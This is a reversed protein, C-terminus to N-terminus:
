ETELLLRHILELTLALHIESTYNRSGQRHGEVMAQLRNRQWYPRSLTREDLLMQRVYESLSDRYWVGFDAFKHRGLFLRELHLASGLHDVRAVWQPMGYDYAYEAKFTFELLQQEWAAALRSRNGGFGRDTAIARLRADGDAILRM